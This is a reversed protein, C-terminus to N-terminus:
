NPFARSTSKGSLRMARELNLRAERFTPRIRLAESYHKMAEELKGQGAMVNGMSLHAVADDPTLRLAVSFHKLARESKGQLLLTNGINLHARSYVPKIRLAERFHGMGEEIKGQSILTSGLNNHAEVHDPNIRIAAKYHNVAEKLKELQALANGLSYHADALDPRIRLADSFHSVAENFRGLGLLFNGLNYRAEAHDPNIRLVESYHRMAEKPRGLDGLVNALNNHADAYDPNKRLAKNFNDVAEDKRGLRVLANGLNNNAKEHAPEIRIAERYQKIAEEIRGQRGIVVGLNYRPRAKEPSKVVCDRWLTEGDGWVRNREYTWFSFVTVSACLLCVRMWKWKVLRRALIVAMMIALMSPLYLRHEYIIELGIVSSEIVLNGLFWLICFSLLRERKAIFISLGLLGAIFALSLLTTIPDTLSHSLSFSHDLNLRSPHPWILLSIYFVVVRLETLVRQSPTFDYGKYLMDIKELPHTGMYILAFIFLLMLLGAFPLLHQRLWTWSLDRFFYWEYLFIFFPLTAAIEKSGVSLIGSLLSGAFLFRKIGTKEAMRAKAYFLLSLVFFMTAMSNMRQVIYTVSQIQIPHVLWILVTLFPLWKYSEYRSRLSPISLTTKLLLYLFLGTAFHILINLVHYGSVNYRHFYYNLAFTINPFPRNSSPSQFGADAIGELTLETLRIHPNDQINPRDDFTFPSQLTNAYLLVVLIALSSIKLVDVFHKFPVVPTETSVRIGTHPLNPNRDLRRRKKGM